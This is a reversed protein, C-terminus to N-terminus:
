GLGVQAIVRESGLPDTMEVRWRGTDDAQGCPVPAWGPARVCALSVVVPARVVRTELATRPSYTTDLTTAVALARGPPQEGTRVAGRLRYRVLVDTTSDFTYTTAGVDLRDPGPSVEGDAVVEVREAWVDGVGPADPLALVLSTIPSAASIWHRVVADGSPLVRTDVYSEDSTLPRAPQPTEPGAGTGTPDDMPGLVFSLAFVAGGVLWAFAVLGFTWWRGLRSRDAGDEQEQVPQAAPLQAPLGGPPRRQRPKKPSM